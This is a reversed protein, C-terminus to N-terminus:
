ANVLGWYTPLVNTFIFKVIPVLGTIVNGIAVIATTYTIGRTVADFLFLRREYLYRFLSERQVPYRYNRRLHRLLPKRAQPYSMTKFIM